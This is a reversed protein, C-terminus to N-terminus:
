SRQWRFNLTPPQATLRSRGRRVGLNRLSQGGKAIVMDAGIVSTVKQVYAVKVAREVDGHILQHSRIDQTSARISDHMATADVSITAFAVVLQEGLDGSSAVAYREQHVLEWSGGHSSPKAVLRLM